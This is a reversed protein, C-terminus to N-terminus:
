KKSTIADKLKEEFKLDNEILHLAAELTMSRIRRRYLKKRNVRQIAVVELEEVIASNRNTIGHQVTKNVNGQMRLYTSIKVNAKNPANLIKAHEISGVMSEIARRLKELHLSKAQGSYEMKEIYVGLAQKTLNKSIVKPPNHKTESKTKTKAKNLFLRKAIIFSLADESVPKVLSSHSEGLITETNANGWFMTASIKDVARDGGAIVYKIKIKSDIKEKNRKRMWDKNLFEIFDSDKKLQDIQNNKGPFIDWYTALDSGNNPVAYLVLNKIKLVQDDEIEELIYQRTVLGGMSHSIISISEYDSYKNNIETRLGAAVEQIKPLNGGLFLGSPYSYSAIDYQKSM